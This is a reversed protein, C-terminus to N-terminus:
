EKARDNFYGKNQLFYVNDNRILCPKITGNYLIRLAYPGEICNLRMPCHQCEHNFFALLRYKEQRFDDFEWKAGNRLTYIIKKDFKGETEEKSIIGIDKNLYSLVRNSIEATNELITLFSITIGLRAGMQSMVSLQRPINKNELAMFNIKVSKPFNYSLKELNELVIPLKGEVNFMSAYETKDLTPLSINITDLGASKLKRQLADNLLFANSTMRVVYGDKKFVRVIDPLQKVLTPEGGTLLVSSFTNKFFSAIYEYDDLSLFAPHIQAKKGRKGKEQGENHCFSCAGNCDKTLSVRLYKFQMEKVYSLFDTKNM